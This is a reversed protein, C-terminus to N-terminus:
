DSDKKALSLDLILEELHIVRKELDRTLADNKMLIFQNNESFFRIEYFSRDLHSIRKSMSKLGQALLFAATILCVITVGNSILFLYNM